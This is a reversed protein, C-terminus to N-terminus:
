FPTAIPCGELGDERVSREEWTFRMRPKIETRNTYYAKYHQVREVDAPLQWTVTSGIEYPDLNLDVFRLDRM